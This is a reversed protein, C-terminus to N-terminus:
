FKFIMDLQLRRYDLDSGSSNTRENIFYTCAAQLNKSLQYKGGLRHGKGDTGGGIFDSDNLAGPVADKQIERYDYFLEWSQPKKAKNYKTGILWGTDQSTGTGINTVHNGYLAVPVGDIKTGLEGFVELLRFNNDFTSSPGGGGTLTVTSNKVNGYDCYTAGGTITTDDSVEHVLGSQISWLSVDEEAVTTSSIEDVWFGGGIVFLQTREDFVTTYKAAIGEPNLDSDWILQNKGARYLPNKMKGMMVDWGAYTKPHWHAYALDLWLDKSSFGSDLTQNTSVPDSSGSAIRLGVDWDENVKGDIGLRARIRHRHRDARSDGEAEITEHRYRLDGSIKVNEIWQVSEPLATAPAAAQAEKVQDVQRQQQTQKQELQEVKQQLAQLQKKLEALEDADTAVAGGSLMLLVTLVIIKKM